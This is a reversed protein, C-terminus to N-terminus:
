NGVGLLCHVTYILGLRKAYAIGPPCIWIGNEFRYRNPQERSLTRLREKRKAEIWGASTHRIVFYDPAHSPRLNQGSASLYDLVLTSPQIYFELVESDRELDSALLQEDSSESQITREIQRSRHRGVIGQSDGRIRRVKHFARIKQIMEIADRKLALYRCLLTFESETMM